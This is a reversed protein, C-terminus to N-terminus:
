CGCSFRPISGQRLVEGSSGKKKTDKLAVLQSWEVGDDLEPEVARAIFEELPPALMEFMRGIRDRNSDSKAM